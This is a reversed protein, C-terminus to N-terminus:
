SCYVLNASNQWEHKAAKIYLYPKFEHNMSESLSCPYPQLCLARLPSSRTPERSRSNKCTGNSPTMTRGPLVQMEVTETSLSTISSRYHITRRSVGSKHAIPHNIRTPSSNILEFAERSPVLTHLSLALVGHLQSAPVYTL